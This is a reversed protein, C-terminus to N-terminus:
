SGSSVIGLGHPRRSELNLQADFAPPTEPMQPLKGFLDKAGNQIWDHIARVDKQPLSSGIDNQPMRDNENVFCCNTIREFLVSEEPKFPVVRYQFRGDEDAKTVPHWILTNYTSSFTRFDPEFNGDHCAPLACSKSFIGTFLSEFAPESADSEIGSDKEPPLPSQNCATAGALFAVM